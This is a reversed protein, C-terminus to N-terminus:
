KNQYKKFFMTETENTQENKILVESLQFQDFWDNFQAYCFFDKAKNLTFHFKIIIIDM